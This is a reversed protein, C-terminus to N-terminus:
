KNWKCWDEVMKGTYVATSISTGSILVEDGGVTTTKVRSGAEWELWDAYNSSSYRKTNNVNANIDGSDLAGVALLGANLLGPFKYSAPYYPVEDLNLGNNGAAAIMFTNGSQLFRYVADREVAYYGTGGGSFNIIDAKEEIALNICEVERRLNINGTDIEHYYKCPIIEVKKCAKAVVLTTIETGHGNTDQNESTQYKQPIYKTLKKNDLDVGTDIVVVRLSKAYIFNPLIILLAMLRLM